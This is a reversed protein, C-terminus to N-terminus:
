GEKKVETQDVAAKAEREAKLVREQRAIVLRLTVRILFLAAAILFFTMYMSQPVKEFWILALMVVMVAIAVYGYIAVTKPSIMLM